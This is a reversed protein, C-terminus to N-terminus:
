NLSGKRASPSNGEEFIAQLAEDIEDCVQKFLEETIVQGDANKNGPTLPHGREAFVNLIGQRAAQIIARDGEVRIEKSM